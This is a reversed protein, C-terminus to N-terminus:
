LANQLLKELIQKYNGEKLDDLSMGKVAKEYFERLKGALENIDDATYGKSYMYEMSEIFAKGIVFLMTAHMAANVAPGAAPGLLKPLWRKLLQTVAEKLAVDAGGTGAMALLMKLLNPLSLDLGYIVALDSLMSLGVTGLGVVDAGPLPIAGGVAAAAVHKKLCKEAERRKADKCVRQAAAMALCQAESLHKLSEQVLEEAGDRKEKGNMNTLLICKEGCRSAAISQRFDEAAQRFDDTCKTLVIIVPMSQAAQRVFDKEFEEFRASPAQVCYWLMHIHEAPDDSMLKADILKRVQDISERQKKESLEFGVTDYIVIPSDESEYRTITDTVPDGIGTAALDEGFVANLLSSKGVGTKGMVILNIRELIELSRERRLRFEDLMGCAMQMRLRAVQLVAPVTVRYAAGTPSALWPQKGAIWKTNSFLANTLKDTLVSGDIHMGAGYTQKYVANALGAMLRYPLMDRNSMAAAPATRTELMDRVASHMEEATSDAAGIGSSAHFARLEVANMRGIATCLLYGCLGYEIDATSAAEDYPAKLFGCVDRLIERYLVGHGRMRNRVSDGGYLQLEEAIRQWYKTYETGHEAHEPTATLQETRRKKGDDDITLCRVLPALLCTRCAPQGDSGPEFSIDHIGGLFTLDPDSLYAM